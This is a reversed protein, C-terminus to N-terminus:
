TTHRTPTFRIQLKWRIQCLVQHSWVFFRNGNFVTSGKYRQHECPRTLRGFASVADDFVKNSINFLAGSTCKYLTYLKGDARPNANIRGEEEAATLKRLSFTYVKGGVSLPLQLNDDDVQLIIKYFGQESRRPQIVIMGADNPFKAKLSQLLQPLLPLEFPTYVARLSLLYTPM